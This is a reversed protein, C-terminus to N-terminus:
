RGQGAAGGSEVEITQGGPAPPAALEPLGEALSWAELERRVGRLDWLQVRGSQTVAALKGDEPSFSVWTLVEPDPPTLVMLVSEADCDYLTVTREEITLAAVHGRRPLALPAYGTAARRHIRRGPSWLGARWWRFDSSSGVVLWEGDSTFAVSYAYVVEGASGARPRAVIAGREVDWVIVRPDKWRAAAAWRGDPSLAVSIIRSCGTLERRSGAENSALLVAREAASETWALTAGTGDLALRRWSSRAEPALVERPGLRPSKSPELPDTWTWRHIGEEGFGALWRGEPDFRVSGPQSLPLQAAQLGTTANWVNVGEV